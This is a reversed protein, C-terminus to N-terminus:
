YKCFYKSSNDLYNSNHQISKSWRYIISNKNSYFKNNVTKLKTSLKINQVEISYSEIKFDNEKILKQPIKEFNFISNKTKLNERNTLTLESQKVQKLSTYELQDSFSFIILVASLYILQRFYPKNINISKMKM